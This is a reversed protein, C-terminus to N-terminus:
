PGAMGIAKAGSPSSLLHRYGHGHLFIDPAEVGLSGCPPRDGELQADATVGYGLVGAELVTRWCWWCWLCAGTTRYQCSKLLGDVGLEGIIRTTCALLAMGGLADEVAQYGLM